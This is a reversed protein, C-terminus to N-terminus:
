GEVQQFMASGYVGRKNDNGGIQSHKSCWMESEKQGREGVWHTETVAGAAATGRLQRRQLVTRHAHAAAVVVAPLHEDPRARLDDVGSILLQAPAAEEGSSAGAEVDDRGEFDRIGLSNSRPQLNHSPTLMPCRFLHM